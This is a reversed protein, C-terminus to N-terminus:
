HLLTPKFANGIDGQEEFDCQSSQDGADIALLDPSVRCSGYVLRVSSLWRKGSSNLPMLSGMTFPYVM